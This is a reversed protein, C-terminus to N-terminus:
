CMRKKIMAEHILAAEEFAVSSLHAGTTISDHPIIEIRSDMGLSM